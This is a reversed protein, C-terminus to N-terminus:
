SELMRQASEQYSDWKSSQVTIGCSCCRFVHAVSISGDIGTVITHGLEHRSEKKCHLCIGRIASGEVKYDM